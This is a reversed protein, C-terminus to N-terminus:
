GRVAGRKREKVARFWANSAPLFTLVAAIISALVGVAGVGYGGVVGTIGLITVILLVIRAWNAGRRMFLDFVVFAIIYLVGIVIGVVLTAGLIGNVDVGDTSTGSRQLQDKAAQQAAPLQTASIIIGVIHALVTLLYLWFAVTVLRPPTLSASRQADSQFPNSTM